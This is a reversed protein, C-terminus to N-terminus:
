HPRPALSKLSVDAMEFISTILSDVKSCLVLDTALGQREMTARSNDLSVAQDASSPKLNARGHAELIRLDTTIPLM